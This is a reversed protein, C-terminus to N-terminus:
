QGAKISGSGTIKTDPLSPNGWYLINGSGLSTARLTNSAFVKVNGSGTTKVKATESKLDMADIDGSGTLNMEVDKVFGTLTFDGSGTGTVRLAPADIALQMDGSGSTTVSITQNGNIIGKCNVNGSGSTSIESITPFSVVVQTSNKGIREGKRFQVNLIGDKVETVVLPAINEDSIVKVGTTSGPQLLLDISASLTIKEFDTVSREEEIINGNGQVMGCSQFLFAALILTCLNKMKEAKINYIYYVYKM